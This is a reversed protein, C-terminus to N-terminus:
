VFTLEAFYELCLLRYLPSYHTLESLAGLLKGYVLSGQSPYFGRVSVQLCQQLVEYFHRAEDLSLFLV